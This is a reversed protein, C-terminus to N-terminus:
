VHGEAIVAGMHRERADRWARPRRVASPASVTRQGVSRTFDRM